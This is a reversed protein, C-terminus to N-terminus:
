EKSNIYQVADSFSLLNGNVELVPTFLIQKDEMLNVDTCTQYTLNKQKLKKELVECKPCHTTYLIITDM